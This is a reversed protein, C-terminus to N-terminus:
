SLHHRSRGKAFPYTLSYELMGRLMPYETMRMMEIRRNYALRDGGQLSEVNRGWTYPKSSVFFPMTISLRCATSCSTKTDRQLVIQGPQWVAKIEGGALLHASYADLCVSQM